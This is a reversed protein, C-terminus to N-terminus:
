LQSVGNSVPRAMAARAAEPLLWPVYLALDLNHRFQGFFKAQDILVSVQGAEKLDRRNAGVRPSVPALLGRFIPDWIYFHGQGNSSKPNPLGPSGQTEGMPKVYGSEAAGERNPLPGDISFLLARKDLLRCRVPM